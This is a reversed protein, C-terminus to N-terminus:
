DMTFFEIAEFGIMNITRGNAPVTCYMDFDMRLLALYEGRKRKFGDDVFDCQATSIYYFKPNDVNCAPKVCVTLGTFENCFVKGGDAFLQKMLLKRDVKDQSTFKTM